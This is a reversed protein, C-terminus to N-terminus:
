DHHAELKKGLRFEQKWFYNYKMFLSRLQLIIEITSRGATGTYLHLIIHLSETGGKKGKAHQIREM